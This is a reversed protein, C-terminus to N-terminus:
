EIARGDAYSYARAPEVEKPYIIGALALVYSVARDDHLGEPASLSAGEISGLQLQTAFSHIITEGNRLSDAGIDYLMPKSKKTTIWGIKGDLGECLVLNSGDELWLIVTHGHNNREVMVQAHQYFLGITNIHAAFVSPEIRGALAAVEEGSDRDLVTLACPDSQPNGEATDAGIVYRNHHHPLRYIELNPISPAGPPLESQPLPRQEQYCQKIWDPALRKDLTRASLAEIDNAPYQEHLDDLAGTEEFIEQKESEYWEQTRDPRDNWALFIHAYKNLGQKATTYIKKFRSEPKSKDPRSLLVLKGGDGITPKIAGLLTGQNDLLDFEDFIALTATYSDGGTSPFAKARSGNALIWEHKSSDTVDERMWDPLRDHM